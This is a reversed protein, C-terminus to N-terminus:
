RSLSPLIMAGTATAVGLSYEHLLELFDGTADSRGFALLMPAGDQTGLVGVLNDRVDLDNVSQGTVTAAASTYSRFGGPGFNGCSVTSSGPNSICVEDADAATWCAAVEKTPVIQIAESAGVVSVTAQNANTALHAIPAVVLDDRGAIGVIVGAPVGAVTTPATHLEGNAGLVFASLTGNKESVYAYGGALTVQAASGDGLLLPQSSTAQTHGAAFHLLRTGTLVYAGHDDIAGSLTAVGGTQLTTPAVLRGNVESFLIANATQNTVLVAHGHHALSGGINGAITALSGVAAAQTTAGTNVDKCIVSAPQGVASAGLACIQPGAFATASSFLVAIIGFGTRSM